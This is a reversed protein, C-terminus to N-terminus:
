AAVTTQSDSAPTIGLHGAFDSLGAVLVDRESFRLDDLARALGVPDDPYYATSDCELQRFQSGLPASPAFEDVIVAQPVNDRFGVTVLRKTVPHGDIEGTAPLSVSALTRGGPLHAVNVEALENVWDPRSSLKTGLDTGLRLAERLTDPSGLRRIPDGDRQAPVFGDQPTNNVM